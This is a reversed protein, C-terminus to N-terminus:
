KNKRFVTKELAISLNQNRIELKKDSVEYYGADKLAEGINVPKKKKKDNEM